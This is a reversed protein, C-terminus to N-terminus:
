GGKKFSSPTERQQFRIECADAKERDSHDHRRACKVRKPDPQNQPM